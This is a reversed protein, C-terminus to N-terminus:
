RYSGEFNEKDEISTWDESLGDWLKPIQFTRLIKM